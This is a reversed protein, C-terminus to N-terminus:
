AEAKAAAAISTVAPAKGDKTKETGSGYLTEAASKRTASIALDTIQIEVSASSYNAGDSTRVSTVKGIAEITCGAGAKPLDKWGLKELVDKDLQLRLGYPYRPEKSPAPSLEAKVESASQKMNTLEM